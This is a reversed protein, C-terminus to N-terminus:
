LSFLWYSWGLLRGVHRVVNLDDVGLHVADSPQLALIAGWMEAKWVTQLPGLVSCFGKCFEGVVLM